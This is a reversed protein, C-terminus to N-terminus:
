LSFTFGSLMKGMSDPRLVAVAAGTSRTPPIRILIVAVLGFVQMEQTVLCSAYTDLDTFDTYRELSAHSSRPVILEENGSIPETFVM